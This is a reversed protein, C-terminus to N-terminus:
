LQFLFRMSKNQKPISSKSYIFDQRRTDLQNKKQSTGLFVRKVKLFSFNLWLTMKGLFKKSFGFAFGFMKVLRTCHDPSWHHFHFGLSSRGAILFLILVSSCISLVAFYLSPVLVKQSFPLPYFHKPWLGVLSPFLFGHCCGTRFHGATLPFSFCCHSSTQFSKSPSTVNFYQSTLHFSTFHACVVISNWITEVEHIILPPGQGLGLM